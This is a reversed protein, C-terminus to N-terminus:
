TTTPELGTIHKWAKGTAIACVTHPSCGHLMAIERYPATGIAAVIKRVADETLKACGHREGKAVNVLSNAHAHRKNESPTVYELNTAANNAKMGDKHNVQLGAPRPGIFAEAVLAHVLRYTFRGGRQLNVVHYAASSDCSTTMPKLVRGRCSHLRGRTTAVKRDLSRVRGLDSIQYFGEFGAIDKWNETMEM